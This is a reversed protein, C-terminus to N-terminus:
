RRGAAGAARGMPGNTRDTLRRSDVGYWPALVAIAILVVLVAIETMYGM